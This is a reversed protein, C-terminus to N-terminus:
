FCHFIRVIRDRLAWRKPVERFEIRKGRTTFSSNIGVIGQIIIFPEVIYILMERGLIYIVEGFSKRPEWIGHSM